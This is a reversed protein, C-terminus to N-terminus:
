NNPHSDDGDKSNMEEFADEFDDDMPITSFIAEKTNSLDPKIDKKKLMYDLLKSM